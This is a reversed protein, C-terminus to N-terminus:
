RVAQEAVDATADITLSREGLRFSLSRIGAIGEVARRIDSEESACDMAPVRYRTGLPLREDGSRAFMPSEGCCAGCAADPAIAPAEIVSALPPVKHGEHDHDHKMAGMSFGTAPTSDLAFETPLLSMRIPSNAWALPVGMSVM